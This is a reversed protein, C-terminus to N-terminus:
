FPEGRPSDSSPNFAESGDYAIIGPNAANETSVGVSGEMTIAEIPLNVLWRKEFHLRFLFSFLSPHLLRHRTFSFVFATTRKLPPISEVVTRAIALSM